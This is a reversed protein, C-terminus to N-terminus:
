VSLVMLAIVVLWCLLSRAYLANYVQQVSGREQEQFDPWLAAKAARTEIDCSDNDFSLAEEGIVKVVQGFNGVAAYCLILLRVPLWELWQHTKDMYDQVNKPLTQIYSLRVAVLGLPGLALYWFLLSTTQVMCFPAKETASQEESAEFLHGLPRIFSTLLVVHLLINILANDGSILEFVVQIVFAPLLLFVSVGLWKQVWPHADFQKEFWHGYRNLVASVESYFDLKKKQLLYGCFFTLVLIILQM